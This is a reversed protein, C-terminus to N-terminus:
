ILIFYYERTDHVDARIPTDSIVITNSSENFDLRLLSTWQKQM